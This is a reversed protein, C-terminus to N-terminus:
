HSIPTVFSIYELGKEVMFREVDNTKILFVNPNNDLQAKWQAKKAPTARDKIQIDTMWILDVLINTNAARRLHVWSQDSAARNKPTDAQGTVFLLISQFKTNHQERFPKLTAILFVDFPRPYSNAVSSIALILLLIFAYKKIAM